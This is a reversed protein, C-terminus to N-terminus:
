NIRNKNNKRMIELKEINKKKSNHKPSRAITSVIKSIMSFNFSKFIVNKIGTPSEPIGDINFPAFEVTYANSPGSIM